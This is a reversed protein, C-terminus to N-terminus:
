VLIIKCTETIDSGFISKIFASINTNVKNNKITNIQEILEADNRSILLGYKNDIDFIHDTNYNQLLITNKNALLAEIHSTGGEIVIILDCGLYNYILDDPNIDVVKDTSAEYVIPIKSKVFVFSDSYIERIQGIVKNMVTDIHRYHVTNKGNTSGNIILACHGEINYQKKLNVKNQIIFTKNRLIYDFQPIGAIPIINIKNDKLTSRMYLDSAYYTISRDWNRLAHTYNLGYAFIGHPIACINKIGFKTFLNIDHQEFNCTLLVKSVKLNNLINTLQSVVKLENNSILYYKVYGKNCYVPDYYRKPMVVVYDINPDDNYMITRIFVKKLYLFQLYVKADPNCQENIIISISPDLPQNINIGSKEIQSLIVKRNELKQEMINLIQNRIQKSRVHTSPNEQHLINLVHTNNITIKNVSKTNVPKTNVPKTNVPKTNAPKTNAPKTNAPKTNVPKTNVPKTNVPKTNVPKTNVPETNVPETNVPETNLQETNVQETNVPETNVQETNVLKINVLETNITNEVKPKNLQNSILSCPKQSVTIKSNIKHLIPVNPNTRKTAVKNARAKIRAKKQEKAIALIRKREQEKALAKARAKAIAKRQKNSVLPESIKNVPDINVSETDTKRIHIEEMGCENIIYTPKINNKSSDSKHSNVTGLSKSEFSVPNTIPVPKIVPIPKKTIPVPKIVPIPKKTIPVPKKTIPVPKKTIPVPKKTIPVPKKIIPKPSLAQNIPVLKIPPIKHSKHSVSKNESKTTDFYINRKIKFQIMDTPLTNEFIFSIQKVNKRYELIITENKLIYKKVPKHRANYLCLYAPSNTQVTTIKIIYTINEETNMYGGCIGKTQNSIIKIKTKNQEIISNGISLM